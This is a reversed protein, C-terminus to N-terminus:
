EIHTTRFSKRGYTLELRRMSCKFEPKMLKENVLNHQMCFWLAFEERSELQPPFEVLKEQLDSACVKCPYLWAFANLFKVMRTKQENTPKDPYSLTM